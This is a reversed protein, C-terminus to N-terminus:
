HFDGYFNRCLSFYTGEIYCPRWHDTLHEPVVILGRPIRLKEDNCAQLEINPPESIVECIIVRIQEPALEQIVSKISTAGAIRDINM